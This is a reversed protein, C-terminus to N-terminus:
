SNRGLKRKESSAFDIEPNSTSTLLRKSSGLRVLEKKHNTHHQFAHHYRAYIGWKSTDAHPPVGTLQTQM